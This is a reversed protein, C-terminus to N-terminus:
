KYKKGPLFISFAAGGLTSEEIVIKGGLSEVIRKSISLGLGTGEEKFTVFSQFVKEAMNKDIGPGDDSIRILCGREYTGLEIFIKGNEEVADVANIMINMLVQIMAAEDTVFGNKSSEAQRAIQISVQISKEKLGAELLLVVQNIIKEIPEKRVKDQYQQGRCYKLVDDVSHNLRSIEMRMIEIFEHKPHNEPVEDALIEAAGKISALPNKIEHALSASVHGLMSLKQSEGLQKEAEVLQSAQKHLRKYSGALKESLTKYKEKLKNKRSSILGVVVGAALYFIIESLESYYAQPGRAWFMYLHPVFALCSLVALLIGGRIGFFIAGITIPFYSLRRYTDHYFIMYGPTLTHLVGIVIVFVLLLFFLIIKMNPKM